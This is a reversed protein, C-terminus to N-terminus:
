LAFGRRWTKSSNIKNWVRPPILTQAHSWFHAQIDAQSGSDMLENQADQLIEEGDDPLLVEWLQFNKMIWFSSLPPPAGYDGTKPVVFRFPETSSFCVLNAASDLKEAPDEDRYCRTHSFVQRLTRALKQSIHSGNGRHFGVFNVLLVGAPSLWHQQIRQFVEVSHLHGPNSGIFVDSIVVDFRKSDGFLLARAEGLRTHGYRQRCAMVTHVECGPDARPDACCSNFDFYKEAMQLVVESVEMVDVKVGHLRLYNPVVGAGLGLQLVHRLSRNVFLVAEQLAFGTFAAQEKVDEQLYQAGIVCPGSTLLKLGLEENEVAAVVNGLSDVLSELLRASPESWPVLVALASAALTVACVALWWQSGVQPTRQSPGLDKGDGKRRRLGAQAGKQSVM